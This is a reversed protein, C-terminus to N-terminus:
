SVQEVDKIQRLYAQGKEHDYQGEWKAIVLTALANGVVNLATRGMDMFRDIGAILALGELPLGASSLTALLIVFMFGPVGAAGKSTVVMTLVLVIQEQLGLHVGYIQAVFLTGIGLYVSAGDLNFVYGTPIVFTTIAKPSGFDEMKQMLQPLVTASSCTTFAILLESKIIRLLTFINFGFARATVGLVVVTFVIIAAYTVGLLKLLPLLSAFGFNAVTVAILAAVGVPAYRMVMGTVKFMADSIGRLTDIVPQRFDRPVSQLALGFVVSFFLVPLLDGRSMSALINDPVIGLILHMFGHHQGAQAASRQINSIDAHGLQSMDTGVGPQLINGFGLGIVIAITTVIEFYVITKFGIRGLSKGDGVGAIGVVMSTFVIPVVVMKILRIFLDGAPQIYNAIATSRVDPYKSLAFGVLIGVFMGIVIQWALGVRLSSRTSPAVVKKASIDM